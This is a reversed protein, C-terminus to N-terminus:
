AMMRRRPSIGKRVFALALVLMAVALIGLSIMRLGDEERVAVNWILHLFFIALTAMLPTSRYAGLRVIVLVAIVVPLTSVVIRETASIDFVQATILIITALIFIHVLLGTRARHASIGRTAAHAIVALILVVSLVFLAVSAAPSSPSEADHHADQDPIQRLQEKRQITYVTPEAAKTGTGGDRYLEYFSSATATPSKYQIQSSSDQQVLATFEMHAGPMHNVLLVFDAQTEGQLLLEKAATHIVPNLQTSSATPWVSDFFLTKGALTLRQGKDDVIEVAVDRTKPYITLKTGEEQRGDDVQLRATPQGTPHAAVYAKRAPGQDQVAFIFPLEPDRQIRPLVMLKNPHQQNLRDVFTQTTDEQNFLDMAFELPAGQYSGIEDCSLATGAPQCSELIATVSIKRGQTGQM